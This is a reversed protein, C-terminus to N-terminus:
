PTSLQTSKISDTNTVEEWKDSLTQEIEESGSEWAEAVEEETMPDSTAVITEPVVVDPDSEDLPEATIVGGVQATTAYNWDTKDEDPAVSRINIRIVLYAALILWLIAIFSYYSGIPFNNMIITTLFPGFTAGMGFILLLGSAIDVYSDQEPDIQDYCHAFVIAYTPQTVAGVMTAAIIAIIVNTTEFLALLLCIVASIACLALLVQRRDVKDSLRGLPWQAIAGGLLMATVYYAASNADLGIRLAYLPSLSWLSATTAGVFIVGVFAAPSLKYIKQPHFKVLSIPAPQASRTLSVPLVAISVIISALVFPAFSAHNSVTVIMQGLMISVFNVVIYISMILGRTENSTRENLWSEVIIYFGSICFGFVARALIWPIPDIGIIYVLSAASSLSVVAAFARIHGARLVIYPAFFCGIVFGAFYSSSVLGVVLDSFNEFDARIPLLTAQLGHGIMMCSVSLLLALIPTVTQIM